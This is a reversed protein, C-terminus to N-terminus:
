VGDQHPWSLPLPCWQELAAASAPLALVQAAPLPGFLLRMATFPDCQLDAPASTRSCTAEDGEVRLELAGYGEIDIVVAGPSLPGSLQRAQLLAGVVGAWDFIQWNGGPRVSTNECCAGLMRALDARWAPLGISVEWGSQETVWTRLMRLGTEDSEAVLESVSDGKESAVLYGVM